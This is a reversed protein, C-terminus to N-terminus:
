DGLVCSEHFFTDPFSRPYAAFLADLEARFDNANIDKGMLNQRARWIAMACAPSISSSRLGRVIYGGDALIFSFVMREGPSPPAMDPENNMKAMLPSWIIDFNFKSFALNIIMFSNRLGVRFGATSEFSVNDASSYDHLVMTVSRHPLSIGGSMGTGRMIKAIEPDLPQNLAVIEVDSM